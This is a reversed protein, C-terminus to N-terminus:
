PYLLSLLQLSWGCSCFWKQAPSSARWSHGQNQASLASAVFRTLGLSPLILVMFILFIYVKTMM